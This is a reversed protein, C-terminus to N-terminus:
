MGIMSHFVAQGFLYNLFNKVINKCFGIGISCLFMIHFKKWIKHTIESFVLFYDLRM